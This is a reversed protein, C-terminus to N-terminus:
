VDDLKQAMQVFKPSATDYTFFLTKSM